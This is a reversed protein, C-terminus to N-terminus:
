LSKTILKCYSEYVKAQNNPYSIYLTQFVYTNKDGMYDIKKKVTKQYIINRKSDVGSFIFWNEKIMKYSLHVDITQTTFEQDLRDFDEIALSGFMRIECRKDKSIFIRGDRNESEPQKIFDSPYKICFNFRPNCYVKYAEKFSFSVLIFFIIFLNKLM